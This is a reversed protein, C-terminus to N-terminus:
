FLPAAPLVRLGFVVRAEEILSDPIPGDELVSLQTPQHGPDGFLAVSTQSHGRTDHRPEYFVGSFGALRLAYAWRQCVGYDDGVSIRRDLGWEGVVKPSRMDALRQGAPITVQALARRDLLEYTIAPLDAVVEMLATLPDLGAYCTGFVSVGTPPDFRWTGMSFWEPDKDARHIRYLLDPMAEKEVVPFERALLGYDDPPDPLPAPSM